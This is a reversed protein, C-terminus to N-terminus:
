RKFQVTPQSTNVRNDSAKKLDSINPLGSLFSPVERTTWHTQSQAELLVPSSNSGQKLFQIGCEAVLLKCAM